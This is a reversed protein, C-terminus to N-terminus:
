IEYISMRRLFDYTVINGAILMLIGMFTLAMLAVFGILGNGYIGNLSFAAVLLIVGLTTNELYKM